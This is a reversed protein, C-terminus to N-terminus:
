TQPNEVKIENGDELDALAKEFGCDCEIGTGGPGKGWALSVPCQQKHRGYEVVAELKTMRELTECIGEVFQGIAQLDEETGMYRGREGTFIAHGVREVERRMWSNEVKFKNLKSKLLEIYCASCLWVGDDSLFAAYYEKECGACLEITKEM